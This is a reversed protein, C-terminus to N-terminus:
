EFRRDVPHEREQGGPRALRQREPLDQRRVQEIRGEGMAMRLLLHGLPLRLHLLAGPLAARADAM